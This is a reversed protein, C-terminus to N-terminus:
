FIRVCDGGTEKAAYLAADANDLLKTRGREGPRDDRSLTALQSVGASLTFGGARGGDDLEVEVDHFRVRVTDAQDAAEQADDGPWAILFEEGGFRAAIDRAGTADRLLDAVRRLVRDGVAVGYADNITHMDDIDIMAVSLAEDRLDARQCLRELWEEAARRNTLGTLTDVGDREMLDRIAVGAPPDFVFTEPAIPEDFVVEVIQLDLAPKGDFLGLVRLLTGHQLDVVFEYLDCGAPVPHPLFFFPESLPRPRGRVRVASRDAQVEDGLIEFDFWPLLPAPELIVDFERGLGAGGGLGNNTVAGQHENYLWWTDGVRVGSRPYAGEKEERVKDPRELWLRTTEEVSRPRERAQGGSLVMLLEAGSQERERELAGFRAEV